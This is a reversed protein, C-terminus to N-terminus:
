PDLDVNNLIQSSQCQNLLKDYEKIWDCDFLLSLYSETIYVKQILVMFQELQIFHHYLHHLSYGHELHHLNIKMRIFAISNGNRVM